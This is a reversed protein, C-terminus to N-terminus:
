PGDEDGIWDPTGTLIGRLNSLPEGVVLGQETIEFRRLRHEFSQTRMKLVGIVKRLEGRYEVHRLVIISGALHSMEQETVRFEGTIRHVENTVLGTVNMNRLYRGINVLQQTTNETQFAREYGTVGDIMVVGADDGEVARRVQRTFEDITVEGPGIDRVTVQGAGSLDQLGMGLATARDLMTRRDEEFSYVVAQTGSNAAATVFQLGTTTKGVGTPGSLFTMTGTTLGGGLLDDLADVGSSLTEVSGSRGHRSPDLRPWVCMGDGTITVGHKGDRTASGRFKSVEVTRRGGNNQLTLVADVLFQLDDDPVSPAAQSTLVVTAGEGKLFDLLGLVQERFQHEDPTLYRLETIPDIVVRDPETETVEDRVADVLSSNEVEGSHFLDYTSDQTFAASSASRDLFAVHGIDLGFQEATERLYAAPEGLNIYLDTGDGGALVHLGFITKGAGPTGRVLVASRPLLGGNLIEDAYPVNTPIRGTDGAQTM